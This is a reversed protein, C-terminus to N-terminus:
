GVRGGGEGSVKGCEWGDVRRADLEQSSWLSCLILPHTGAKTLCVQLNRSQLHYSQKRVVLSIINM